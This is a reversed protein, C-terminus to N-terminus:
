AGSSREGRAERAFCARRARFRVARVASRRAHDRPVAPGLQRRDVDVLEARLGSASSCAIASASGPVCGPWCRWSGLQDEFQEAEVGALAGFQDAFAHELLGLVVVRHQAIRVATEAGRGVVEVEAAVQEALMPRRTPWSTLTRRGRAGRARCTGRRPRPARSRPCGPRRSGAAALVEVLERRQKGVLADSGRLRPRRIEEAHPHDVQDRREALALAAQDDGRRAAALGDQELLDGARDACLWGSTSSIM